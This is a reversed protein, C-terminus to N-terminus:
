DGSGQQPRVCKTRPSFLSEEPSQASRRSAQRFEVSLSPETQSGVNWTSIVFVSLSPLFCRHINAKSVAGVM